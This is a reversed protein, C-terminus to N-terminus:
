VLERSLSLLYLILATMIIMDNMGAAAQYLLKHIESSVAYAALILVPQIGVSILLKSITGIKDDGHLFKLHLIYYIVGSWM